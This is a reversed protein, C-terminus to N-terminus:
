LTVALPGDLHDGDEPRAQTLDAWPLPSRSAGRTSACAHSPWAPSQPGFSEFGCRAATATATCLCREAELITGGTSALGPQTPRSQLTTPSSLNVGDQLARGQMSSDRPFEGSGGMQEDTVSSLGM